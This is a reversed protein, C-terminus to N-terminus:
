VCAALTASKETPLRPATSHRDLGRLGQRERGRRRGEEKTLAEFEERARTLYQKFAEGWDADVSNILARLAQHASAWDVQAIEQNRSKQLFTILSIVSVASAEFATISQKTVPSKPLELTGAALVSSLMWSQYTHSFTQPVYRREFEPLAGSLLSNLIFLERLKDDRSLQTKLAGLYRSLVNSEFLLFDKWHNAFLQFLRGGCVFEVPGYRVTAHQISEIASQPSEYPSLVYVGRVREKEGNSPNIYPEVFAQEAQQLVDKASTRCGIAGKIKEKKVVCAYLTRELLGGSAYFVIDKGKENTGHTIRVDERGMKRFLTALANRLQEESTFERAFKTVQDQLFPNPPEVTPWQTHAGAM